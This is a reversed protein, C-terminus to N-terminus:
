KKVQIFRTGNRGIEGYRMVYVGNILGTKVLNWAEGVSGAMV